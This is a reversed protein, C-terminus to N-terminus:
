GGYGQAKVLRGGRVVALSVGPVHMRAMAASVLRDVSDPAAAPAAQARLSDGPGAAALAFALALLRGSV